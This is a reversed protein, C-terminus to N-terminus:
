NFNSCTQKPGLLPGTGLSSRTTSSRPLASYWLIILNLSSTVWVHMHLRERRIFGDTNVWPSIVKGVLELEVEFSDLKERKLNLILQLPYFWKRINLDCCNTHGFSTDLSLSTQLIFHCILFSVVKAKELCIQQAVFGCVNVECIYFTRSLPTPRLSHLLSVECTSGWLMHRVVDPKNWKNGRKGLGDWLTYLEENRRMGACHEESFRHQVKNMQRHVCATGLMWSDDVSASLYISETGKSMYGSSSRTFWLIQKVKAAILFASEVASSGSGGSWCPLCDLKEVNKGGSNKKKKCWLWKPLHLYDLM